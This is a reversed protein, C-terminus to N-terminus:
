ASSGAVNRKAAALHLLKEFDFAASTKELKDKIAAVCRRKEAMFTGTPEFYKEVTGTFREHFDDCENPAPLHISCGAEALRLAVWERDFYQTGITISPVNHLIPYHYTGSSCQHIMLDIHSCVTHTPMWNAFYYLEQQEPTLNDIKITSIVAIGQNLLYRMSAFVASSAKTM